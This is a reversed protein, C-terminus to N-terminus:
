GESELPALACLLLSCSGSAKPWDRARYSRALLGLSIPVPKSLRFAALAVEPARGGEQGRSAPDPPPFRPQRRRPSSPSSYFNQRLKGERTAPLLLPLPLFTLPSPLLHSAPSSIFSRPHRPQKSGSHPIQRRTPFGLSLEAQVRGGKVAM